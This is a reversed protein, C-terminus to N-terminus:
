VEEGTAFLVLAAELEELTGIDIFKELIPFPAVHRGQALVLDVLSPMGFFTDPPVLDVVDPELVYIGANCPRHLTPKEEIGSIRDGELHLVGYPVQVAYDFTGVTVAAQQQRHYDVLRAFHVATVQDANMVLIPGPPREPLLSLPGATNLEVHERLYRLHVGYGEGDGLREEFAEAKYNVSLYVDLVGAAWLGEILREVITTRGVTLLPKPVKDTLPRLRQGRGGALIVATVPAEHGGVDDLHRIGALRGRDVVAVSGLRQRELLSRVEADSAEPEVIAPDDSMVESVKTSRDWGLLHARRIEGDTITGIVREDGGVDNEAVVALAVGEEHFRELVGGIEDSSRVIITM